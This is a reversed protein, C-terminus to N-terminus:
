LFEEIEKRTIGVCWQGYIKGDKVFSERNFGEDKFGMKKVYNYVKRQNEPISALVKNIREPLSLIWEYLKKMMERGLSHYETFLYPHIKVSTTNDNHVLIVGINENDRKVLLWVHFDDFSPYYTDSDIGDESAREWIEPTTIIERVADMDFTVELNFDM